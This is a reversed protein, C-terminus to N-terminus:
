RKIISAGYVKELGLVRLYYVGSPFFDLAINGRLTNDWRAMRATQILKGHGDYVECLATKENSM